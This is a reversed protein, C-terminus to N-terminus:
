PNGMHPAHALCTAPTSPMPLQPGQGRLYNTPAHITNMHNKSFWWCRYKTMVQLSESTSAELLLFGDIALEATSAALLQKTLGNRFSAGIGVPLAFFARM